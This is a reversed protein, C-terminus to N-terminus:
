LLQVVLRERVPFFPVHDISQTELTLEATHCLQPPLIGPPPAAQVAPHANHANDDTDDDNDEDRHKRGSM